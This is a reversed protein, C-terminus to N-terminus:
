LSILRHFLVDQRSLTKYFYSFRVCTQCTRPSDQTSQFTYYIDTHLDVLQIITGHWTTGIQIQQLSALSAFSCVGNPFTAQSCHQLFGQCAPRQSWAGLLAGRTGWAGDWVGGRGRKLNKFRLRPPVTGGWSYHPNAIGGRGM